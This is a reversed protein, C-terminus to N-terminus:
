EGRVCRPCRALVRLAYVMNDRCGVVLSGGAVVASSFVEGALQKEGVVVGSTPCLASVVGPVSCAFVLPFLMGCGGACPLAAFCPSSFVPRGRGVDAAWAM